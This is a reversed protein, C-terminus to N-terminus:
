GVAGNSQIYALLDAENDFSKLKEIQDSSATSPIGTTPGLDQLTEMAQREEELAADHVEVEPTQEQELNGGDKTVEQVKAGLFKGYKEVWAKPDESEPIMASVAPDIGKEELLSAVTDGREKANLRDMLENNKQVLKEIQARLGKGSEQQEFGDGDLVDSYDNNNYGSM